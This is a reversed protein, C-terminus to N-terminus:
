FIHREFLENADRLLHAMDLELVEFRVFYMILLKGDKMEWALLVGSSMRHILRERSRWSDLITTAGFHKNSILNTQILRRM